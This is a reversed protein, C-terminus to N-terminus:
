QLMGSLHEYRDKFLQQMGSLNNKVSAIVALPNHEIVLQSLLMFRVEDFAIGPLCHWFIKQVVRRDRLQSAQVVLVNVKTKIRSCANDTRAVFEVAESPHTGMRILDATCEGPERMVLVVPCLIRDIVEPFFALATDAVGVHSYGKAEMLRDIDTSEQMDKLPEPYCVSRDTTLLVALWPMSSRPMGMVMFGKAM